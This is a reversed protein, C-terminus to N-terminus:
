DADDALLWQAAEAGSGFRRAKGEALERLAESEGAQWQRTWYYAQDRPVFLPVDRSHGAARASSTEFVHLEIGAPRKATEFTPLTITSM